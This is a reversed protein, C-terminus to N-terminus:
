QPDRPKPAHDSPAATVQHRHPCQLHSCEWLENIGAPLAATPQYGCVACPQPRAQKSM